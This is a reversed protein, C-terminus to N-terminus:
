EWEAAGLAAIEPKFEAAAKLAHSRLFLGYANRLDLPIIASPNSVDDSSPEDMIADACSRLLLVTLVVGDPTGMGLQNPELHSRVESM